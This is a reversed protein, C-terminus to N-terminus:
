RGAGDPRGVDAAGPGPHLSDSVPARMLTRTLVQDDITDHDSASQM